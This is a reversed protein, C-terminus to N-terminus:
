WRRLQNTTFQWEPTIIFTNNGTVEYWPNPSGNGPNKLVHIDQAPMYSQALLYIKKGRANIAVDMVMVAHGPSGGKILVDGPQINEFNAVRKLQKELSLTGCYGFVKELYREFGPRDINAPCTYKRGSNDAFSIAAYQKRSYLYEARLRMVADACQQLDKDGVPVDLVAFQATQNRKLEGNYLFVRTDKKLPIQRLWHAFSGEAYKIRIYDEPLPIAEIIAPYSGVPEPTRVISTLQVHKEAPLCTFVPFLIIMLMNREM